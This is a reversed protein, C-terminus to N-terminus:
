YQKYYEQVQLLKRRDVITVGLEQLDHVTIWHLAMSDTIGNVSLISTTEMSVQAIELLFLMFQESETLNPTSAELSSSSEDSSSPPGPPGPPGPDPPPPPGPTPSQEPNPDTHPDPIPPENPRSPVETPSGDRTEGTHANRQTGPTFLNTVLPSRPFDRLEQVYSSVRRFLSNTEHGARNLYPHDYTREPTVVRTTSSTATNRITRSTQRSM